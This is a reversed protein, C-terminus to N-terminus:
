QGLTEYDGWNHFKWKLINKTVFSLELNLVHSCFFFGGGSGSSGGSGDGGDGLGYGGGIACNCVGGSGGSISLWLLYENTKRKRIRTKLLSYKIQEQSSPLKSEM